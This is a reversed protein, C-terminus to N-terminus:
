RRRIQDFVALNRDAYLDDRYEVLARQRAAAGFAEALARDSLMRQLAGALADVDQPPTLLGTRGNVVIEASGGINTAIAATGRMAAEATVLGFPEAWVSPVVQVWARSALTELDDRDVHGHWTVRDGLELRDALELLRAREPGDGAVILRSQPVPLQAFARLLVDVGKDTTLRGAFM